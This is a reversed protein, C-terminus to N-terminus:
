NWTIEAWPMNKEIQKPELRTGPLQDGPESTCVLNTTSGAIELKLKDGLTERAHRDHKNLLFAHVMYLCSRKTKRICEEKNANHNSLIAVEEVASGVCTNTTDTTNLGYM